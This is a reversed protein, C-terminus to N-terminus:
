LVDTESFVSVKHQPAQTVTRFIPRDCIAELICQYPANTGNWQEIDTCRMMTLLRTIVAGAEHLACSGFGTTKPNHKTPDLFCLLSRHSDQWGLSSVYQWLARDKTKFRGTVCIAYVRM